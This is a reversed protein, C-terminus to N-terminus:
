MSDIGFGFWVDFERLAFTFKFSAELVHYLPFM